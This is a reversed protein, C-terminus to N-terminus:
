ASSPGSAASGRLMAEQMWAYTGLWAARVEPTFTAGVSRELAWLLADRFTGYHSERVGWEHHLRGLQQLQPLLKEPDDLDEVMWALAAVFNRQVRELDSPFMPRIEPDLEFLRAFFMAGPSGTATLVKDLSLQVLLRYEPCLRTAEEPNVAQAM